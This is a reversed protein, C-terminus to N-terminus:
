TLRDTCSPGDGTTVQVMITLLVGEQESWSYQLNGRADDVASLFVVDGSEDTEEAGTFGHEALVPALTESAAAWDPVAEGGRYTPSQYFCNRQSVAFTGEGREDDLTLDAGADTLAEAAATVVPDYRAPADDASVQASAGCAALGLVLLSAALAGIPRHRAAIRLM